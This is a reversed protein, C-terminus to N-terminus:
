IPHQEGESWVTPTFSVQLQFRQGGSRGSYKAQLDELERQFAKAEAFDLCLDTTWIGPILAPLDDSRADLNHGPAISPEIMLGGGPGRFVRLGIPKEHAFLQQAISRSLSHALSQYVEALAEELTAFNTTDFPLFLRESIASYFKIARGARTESRTVHILELELLRAIQYHMRSLNTELIEAAQSMTIERGLFVALCRFNIPNTLYESAAANTIWVFESDNPNTNKNQTRDRSQIQKDMQLLKGADHTESTFVHAAVNTWDM